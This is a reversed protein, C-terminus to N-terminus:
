LYTNGDLSFVWFERFELEISQLERTELMGDVFRYNMCGIKLSIGASEYVIYFDCVIGPFLVV